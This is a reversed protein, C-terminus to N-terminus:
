VWMQLFSNSCARDNVLCIHPVANKETEGPSFRSFIFRRKGAASFRQKGPSFDPAEVLFCPTKVWMQLLSKLLSQDDENCIHPM